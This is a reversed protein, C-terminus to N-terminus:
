KIGLSKLNNCVCEIVFNFYFDFNELKEGPKITDKLSPYGQRHIEKYQPIKFILNLPVKKADFVPKLIKLNEISMLDEDSNKVIMYIDFFDRARERITLSKVIQKYENTQQCIARLKEFLILSPLYVYLTYNDLDKLEKNDCYEYKSIDITFKRKNSIGYSIAERRLREINNDKMQNTLEAKIVKFEIEYGGWFDELSKEIKSPKKTIKIDFVWFGERKFIRKFNKELTKQLNQFEEESFDDAMSFDIDESFRKSQKEYFFNLAM